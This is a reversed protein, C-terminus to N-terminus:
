SKGAIEAAVTAASVSIALQVWMFPYYAITVFQGAVLFGVMAADFGYSLAPLWHGDVQGLSRRISRNASFVSVLLGLYIFLGVLGADTGVQVFINHPLQAQGYM